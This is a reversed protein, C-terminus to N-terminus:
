KKEGTYVNEFKNIKEIYVPDGSLVVNFEEGCESCKINTCLGGRPGLRFEEAGCCPM